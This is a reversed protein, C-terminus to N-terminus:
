QRLGDLETGMWAWRMLGKWGGGGGWQDSVCGCEGRTSLACRRFSVEVNPLCSRYRVNVAPGFWFFDSTCLPTDEVPIGEFAEPHQVIRLVCIYQVDDQPLTDRQLLGQFAIMLPEYLATCVLRVGVNQGVGGAMHVVRAAATRAMDVSAPVSQASPCTNLMSTGGPKLSHLQLYIGLVAEDRRTSVSVRGVKADRSMDVSAPVSQARPSTKLM